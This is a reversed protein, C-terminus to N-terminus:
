KNGKGRGNGKGPRTPDVTPEAKATPEPKAQARTSTATSTTARSVTPAATATPSTTSVAPPATPQQQLTATPDAGGMLSGLAFAGWILLAVFPVALWAVSPRGREETHRQARKRLEARTPRPAPDVARGPGTVDADAVSLAPLTRTPSPQPSLTTPSSSLPMGGLPALLADALSRADTPRQDPDKVLCAEVVARLDEPVTLPLPPPEDNVQAVATAVPTGCDFPKAGTLMEHAIIGLSYLDSAGSATEGLAQEPSLYEPTGLVEGTITHGKGEGARAIGFDTLKAQGGPTVIINAPKVDRHVVGSEHAAALALAAQGVISRVTDPEFGQGKSAAIIESLPRGPVLEMVLYPSDNDDGSDFVAAINPHHLAASHRAEDRFRDRYGPDHSERMIKVAVERGLVDDTASWVDGMGGSAIPAGLTYRSGLVHGPRFATSM